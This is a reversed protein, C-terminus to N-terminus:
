KPPCPRPTPWIRRRGSRGAACPGPWTFPLLGPRGVAIWREMAEIRDAPVGPTEPRRRGPEPPPTALESGIAFLDDQVLSLCENIWDDEVDVITRGLVANLEDVTGYAEVRPHHKPVRPGGFLGTDGGDGTRTYIKM